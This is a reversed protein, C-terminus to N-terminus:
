QPPLHGNWIQDYLKLYNPGVANFTFQTSLSLAERMMRRCRDQDSILQRIDSIIKEKPTHRDFLLSCSSLSESSEVSARVVPIAGCRLYEYIKNSSGEIWYTTEPNIFHLGIHCNETFKQTMSRTVYGLHFRFRAGYEEELPIMMQQLEEDHGYSPGGIFFTTKPIHALIDSAIKLMLRVDRDHPNLSGIYLLNITSNNESLLVKERIHAEDYTDALPFNPIHAHKARPFLSRPDSKGGLSAHAVGDVADEALLEYFRHLTLTPLQTKKNFVEYFEHRDYVIRASRFLKRKMMTAVKLLCPDHVHLVAPATLNVDLEKLTWKIRSYFCFPLLYKTNFVCFNLPRMHSSPPCIRFGKEGYLSFHGSELTPDFLSFHLRFVHETNQLLYRIHRGVRGDEPPHEDLVIVNM